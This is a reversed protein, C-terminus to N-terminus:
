AAVGAARDSKRGGGATEGSDLRGPAADAAIADERQRFQKVVDARYRPGRGVRRCHQPRDGARVDVIRRGIRGGNRVIEFGEAVAHASQSDADIAAVRRVADVRLDGRRKAFSFAHEDLKRAVM